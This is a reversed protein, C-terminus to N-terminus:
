RAAKGPPRPDADAAPAPREHWRERPVWKKDAPDSEYHPSMIQVGNENFVDQINEHLAALTKIREEPKEIMAIVQYEVYFDSLATQYVFPVPEKRLGPTRDAAMCLMAHVQRWPDSYGITVTTSVFVGESGALRTFNKSAKSVLLGNPINVVERKNTRIKTSLAGIGLVVGEDDDIRVYDGPKLARSYLIVLGGLLQGVVGSAGLSFMLGVFVSVGKFAESGSGPIYPYAMVLALLWVLVNLIRRTPQITERVGEPAEIKGTEIAAMFLALFRLLFRTVVVILFIIVLDPLVALFESVVSKVAAFSNGRLTEGWPRTFPFRRLMFTLWNFLLLLGVVWAAFRTSGRLVAVLQEPGFVRFGRVAVIGSARQAMADFRSALSRTIRRLGWILLIFTGTGLLAQVVGRLLERPTRAEHLERLALALNEVAGDRLSQLTPGISSDGDAPVLVFAGRNGITILFGEPVQSWGVDLTSGRAVLYEIRDRAANVRGEPQQGLFEGRLVVIERNFFLLEAPQAVGVSDQSQAAAPRPALLASWALLVVLALIGGCRRVKRPSAEM